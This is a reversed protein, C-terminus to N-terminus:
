DGEDDEVYRRDTYPGFYVWGSTTEGNALKRDVTGAPLGGLVGGFPEWTPFELDVPFRAERYARREEASLESYGDADPDVDFELRRATEVDVPVGAIDVAESAEVFGGTSEVFRNRVLQNLYTDELAFREYEYQRERDFPDAAEDDYEIYKNTLMHGPDMMPRRGRDFLTWDDYKLLRVGVTSGRGWYNVSRRYDEPHRDPDVVHRARLRGAESTGLVSVPADARFPLPDLLFALPHPEWRREGDETETTLGAKIIALMEDMFVGEVHGRSYRRPREAAKPTPDVPRPSHDVSPPRNGYVREDVARGANYRAEAPLQGFAEYVRAAADVMAAEVAAEDPAFGLTTLDGTPLAVVREGELPTYIQNETTRAFLTGGISAVYDYLGGIDGTPPDLRLGLVTPGTALGEPEFAHLPFNDVLGGDVWTGRHPGEAVSTPRYVFPIAMSLRVADVVPVSPTRSASFTGATGTELNAGVVRLDLGSARGFADFTMGAGPDPSGATQLGARMGDEVYRRAYSGAFAGDHLLTGAVYLPFQGTQFVWRIARDPLGVNSRDNWRHLAFGLWYSPDGLQRGSLNADAWEQLTEGSAAVDEVTEGYDTADALADLLERRVARLESKTADVGGMAPLLLRREAVSRPVAEIGDLRPYEVASFRAQEFFRATDDEDMLLRYAEGLGVRGAILAATIAGASTGALGDIRTEDVVYDDPLSTSGDAEGAREAALAPNRLFGFDGLAALAGLYAFGKGGGGSFVLHRVQSAAVRPEDDRRWDAPEDPKRFPHSPDNALALPSVGVYPALSPPVGGDDSTM